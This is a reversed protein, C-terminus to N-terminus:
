SDGNQSTRSLNYVIMTGFRVPDTVFASVIPPFIPVFILIAPTPDM